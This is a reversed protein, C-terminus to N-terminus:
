GSDLTGRMTKDDFLAEKLLEKKLARINPVCLRDGYWLVENQISFVKNKGEEVGEKIKMLEFDDKQQQKVTEILPLSIQLTTLYGQNELLVVEIRLM